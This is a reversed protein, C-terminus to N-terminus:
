LSQKIMRRYRTCANLITPHPIHAVKSLQYTSNLVIHSYYFIRSYCMTKLDRSHMDRNIRELLDRRDPASPADFREM